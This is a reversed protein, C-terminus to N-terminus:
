DKFRRILLTNKESADFIDTTPIEGNVKLMSLIHRVSRGSIASKISTAKFYVANNNLMKLKSAPIVIYKYIERKRIHPTLLRGFAGVGRQSYLLTFVGQEPASEYRQTPRTLGKKIPITSDYKTSASSEYKPEDRRRWKFMNRFYSFWGGRPRPKDTVLSASVLNELFTDYPFTPVLSVTHGLSTAPSAMGVARALAVIHLPECHKKKLCYDM